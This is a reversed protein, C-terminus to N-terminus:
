KVEPATDIAHLMQNRLMETLRAEVVPMGMGTPEPHSLTDRQVWKSEECELLFASGLLVLSATGFSPVLMRCFAPRFGLVEGRKALRWRASQVLMCTAFIFSGTARMALPQKDLFDITYDRCGLPSVGVAVYWAMPLAIGLACIWGFDSPCLLVGVGDALGRVPRVRRWGELAALWALVCFLIAAAVGSMRDAMAHEARRL